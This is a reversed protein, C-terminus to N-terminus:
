NPPAESVDDITLGNRELWSLVDPDQRLVRNSHGGKAATKLDALILDRLDPASPQGTSFNPDLHIRSVGRNFEYIRHGRAQKADRIEIASTLAEEAAAWDPSPQDKLAFGLEGFHRHFERHEDAEGLARLLPIVRELNAKNREWDAQRAQQAQVFTQVKAPRSAAKIAAALEKQDIGGAELQRTVLSLADADRAAQEDVTKRAVREVFKGLAARDAYAFAGALKLRTVLYGALFGGVLYYILLASGFGRAAADDGLGPAVFRVLDRFGKRLQGIQVLGVGVLIKTLWDSIQELNTNPQYDLGNGAGDPPSPVGTLTRPIGFLFGALAGVLFAAAGAMLATALISWSSRAAGYIVVAVAGAGPLLWVQWELRSADPKAVRRNKGVPSPAPL